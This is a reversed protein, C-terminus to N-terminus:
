KNTKAGHSTLEAIIKPFKMRRAIALANDGSDQGVINYDAGHDLLLKVLELNGLFTAWNLTHDNNIDTYNIEAGNAILRKAIEINNSRSSEILANTYFKNTNIANINPKEALLINLMKLDSFAAAVSLPYYGTSAKKNIDIGKKILDIVSKHDNKLIAINLFNLSLPTNSITNSENLYAKLENHNLKKSDHKLYSFFIEMIVKKNKFMFANDLPNSHNFGIVNPNANNKLLMQVFETRNYGTAASLATYNRANVKNIRIGNKILYQGIEIQGARAAQHLASAEDNGNNGIHINARAEETLYQLFDINGFRASLPLIAYGTMNHEDPNFGRKILSKLLNLNKDLLSFVLALSKTNVSLDQLRNYKLLSNNGLNELFLYGSDNMKQLWAIAILKMIKIQNTELAYDFSKYGNPAEYDVKVGNDILYKAIDAKGYYSAMMLANSKRNNLVNINAGNKILWMVIKLDGKQSANHLPRAYDFGNINAGKKIFGAAKKFDNIELSRIFKETLHNEQTASLSLSCAFVTIFIIRM